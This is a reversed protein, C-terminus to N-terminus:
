KGTAAAGTKMKKYLNVVLPAFFSLISVVILIAAIPSDFFIGYSGESM